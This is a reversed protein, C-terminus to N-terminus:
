DQDHLFSLPYLRNSLVGGTPLIILDICCEKTYGELLLLWWRGCSSTDERGDVTDEIGRLPIMTMVYMFGLAM